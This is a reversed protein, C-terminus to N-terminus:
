AAAKGPFGAKKQAGEQIRRREIGEYYVELLQDTIRGWSYNRSVFEVAARGMRELLRPEALFRNLASALKEPEAPVVRGVRAAEVEPFHCGPSLLVGTGSALAELAAM